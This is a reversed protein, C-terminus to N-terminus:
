VTESAVVRSGKRSTWMLPLLRLLTLDRSERLSTVTSPLGVEWDVRRQSGALHDGNQGDGGGFATREGERQEILVLVENHDVLRGLQETHGGVLFLGAGGIVYDGVIHLALVDVVPDINEVTQVPVGGPHEHEGPVQLRLLQELGLPVLDDGAPAVPRQYLPRGLRVPVGDAGIQYLGSGM